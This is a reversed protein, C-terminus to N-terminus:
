KYYSTMNSAEIGEISPRTSRLQSSTQLFSLRSTHTPSTNPIQSIQSATPATTEKRPRGPGRKTEPEKRSIITFGDEDLDALSSIWPGIITVERRIEATKIQNEHKAKAFRDKYIQYTKCSAKQWSKNKKVCNSCLVKEKPCDQSCNFCQRAQAKPTWIEASYLISDLVTGHRVVKRQIEESLLSIIFSGKKRGKREAQVLEKGDQLWKIRFIMIDQTRAKSADTTSKIIVSNDTNKGCRNQHVLSRWHNGCSLRAPTNKVKRTSGNQTRMQRIRYAGKIKQQAISLLESTQMESAGPARIRVVAKTVPPAVISEVEELASMRKELPSM